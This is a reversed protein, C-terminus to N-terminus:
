WPINCTESLSSKHKKKNEKMNLYKICGQCRVYKLYDTTQLKLDPVILNDCFLDTSTVQHGSGSSSGGTGGPRPPRVYTLPRM